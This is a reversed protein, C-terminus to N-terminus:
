WKMNLSRRLPITLRHSHIDSRDSGTSLPRGALSLLEPFAAAKRM